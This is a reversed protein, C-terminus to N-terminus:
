ESKGPRKIARYAATRVKINHQQIDKIDVHNYVPVEDVTLKKDNQCIGNLLPLSSNNQEFVSYGDSLLM